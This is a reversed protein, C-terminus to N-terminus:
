SGLDELRQDLEARTAVFWVSPGRNSERILDRLASSASARETADGFIVVRLQYNVFKQLVEGAFGTRLEFFAPDLKNIPVVVVSAGVGRAEAILDIAEQVCRLGPGDERYEFLRYGRQDHTRKDIESM